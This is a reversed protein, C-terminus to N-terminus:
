RFNQYSPSHGNERQKSQLLLIVNWESERLLLPRSYVANTKTNAGQKDEWPKINSHYYPQQNKTTIKKLREFFPWLHM